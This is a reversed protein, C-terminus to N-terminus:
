YEYIQKYVDLIKQPIPEVTVNKWESFDKKNLGLPDLTFCYLIKDGEIKSLEKKLESLAKRDLSYYAALVKNGKQFVRYDDTTKIEDFIGERLCLMETCEKTIRIKLDDKNATKKIFKTKFYKLSGGIGETKTYGGMVKKIRPYCIDSAINGEDNTCLIFSRSGGDEKNLEMVAHGTTGSGAFFDLVISDKKSIPRIIYKILNLPKVTYLVNDRGEQIDFLKKLEFKAETNPFDLILSQVKILGGSDNEYYKKSIQYTGDRKKVFEIRGDLVMQEFTDKAVLWQTTISKGDPTKIPYVL